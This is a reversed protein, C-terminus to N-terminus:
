MRHGQAICSEEYDWLESSLGAEILSMVSRYEVGPPIDVSMLDQVRGSETSCGVEQLQRVLEEIRSGDFFIIRLTSHGRVSLLEEFEFEGAGGASYSVLDGKSVGEVFFPISVLECVSDSLIRAHLAEEAFPPYGEEDQELPFVVRIFGVDAAESM